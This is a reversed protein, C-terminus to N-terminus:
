KRGKPKASATRVKAALRGLQRRRGVLEKAGWIDSKCRLFTARWFKNADASLYKPPEPYNSRRLSLTGWEAVRVSASANLIRAPVIWERYPKGEEVIEYRRLAELKISTTLRLVTDGKAGENVDVPKLSVFVGSLGHWKGDEFGNALIAIASEATTAHYLIV